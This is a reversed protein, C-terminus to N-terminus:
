SKAARESKQHTAKELWAPNIKVGWGPADPIKVKGDVVELAPSYLREGAKAVKAISFELVPGANPIAAM